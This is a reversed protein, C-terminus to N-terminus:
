RPVDRDDADAARGPQGRHRRRRPQHPDRQRHRRRARRDPLKEAALAALIADEVERLAASGLRDSRVLLNASSHNSTAFARLKEKPIMFMLEALEGRTDPIRAQAPDGGEMAQRAVKVLDAASVVATVGPLKEIRPRCASSRACRRRSASPARADRRALVVYIPVAGTLLRNVAAFDQRM